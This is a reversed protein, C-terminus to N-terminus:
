IDEERGELLFLLLANKQLLFFLPWLVLFLLCIINKENVIWVSCFM